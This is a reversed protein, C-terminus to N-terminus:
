PTPEGRLARKARRYEVAVTWGPFHWSRDASIDAELAHQRCYDVMRVMSDWSLRYPQTVFVAPKGDKNWLSDHDAGPPRCDGGACRECGSAGALRRILQYGGSQRLGHVKAWRERRHDGIVEAFAREVANADAAELLRRLAEVAAEYEPTRDKGKLFRSM